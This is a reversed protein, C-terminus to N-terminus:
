SELYASVGRMDDVSVVDEGFSALQNRIGIFMLGAENAARWDNLTDGVYLVRQSAYRNESVIRWLLDTKGGQSTSGSISRFYKRLGRDEVVQELEHHPSNSAVHLPLRKNFCELFELAGPIFPCVLVKSMVLRSLQEDFEKLQGQSSEVGLLGCLFKFQEYRSVGKHALHHTFAEASVAPFRGFFERFADTKLLSSDLVVGDFDLIISELAASSM